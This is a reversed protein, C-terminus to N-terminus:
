FIGMSDSSDLNEENRERDSGFKEHVYCVAYQGQPLSTNWLTYKKVCKEFGQKKTCNTCIKYYKESAFDLYYTLIIHLQQETDFLICKPVADSTVVSTTKKFFFPNHPNLIFCRLVIQIM